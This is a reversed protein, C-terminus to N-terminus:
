VGEQEGVPEQSTSLAMWDPQDSNLHAYVPKEHRVIDVYNPLDSFPVFIAGVNGGVNYVPAPPVPSSPHLGYVIFRSGDAGNCALYGQVQIAVGGWSATNKYGTNLVYNTVAFTKSAM